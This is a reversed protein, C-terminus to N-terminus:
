RAVREREGRVGDRPPERKVEEGSKAKKSCDVAVVLTRREKESLVGVLLTHLALRRPLILLSATSASHHSCICPVLSLSAPPQQGDAAAPSRGAASAAATATSCSVLLRPLFHFCDTQEEGAASDRGQQQQQQQM